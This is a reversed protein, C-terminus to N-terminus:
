NVHPFSKTQLMAEGKTSSDCFDVYWEQEFELALPIVGKM